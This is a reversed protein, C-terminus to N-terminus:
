CNAQGQFRSLRLYPQVVPLAHYKKGRGTRKQRDKFIRPFSYKKRRTTHIYLPLVLLAPSLQPPGSLLKRKKNVLTRAGSDSQGSIPSAVRFLRNSKSRKPASEVSRSFRAAHAKPPLCRVPRPSSSRDLPGQSSQRQIGKAGDSEPPEPTRKVLPGGSVPPSRRL